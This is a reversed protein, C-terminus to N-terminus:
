RKVWNITSSASLRWWQYRPTRRALMMSFSLALVTASRNFIARPACDFAQGAPEDVLAATSAARRMEPGAWSRWLQDVAGGKGFLEAGVDGCRAAASM